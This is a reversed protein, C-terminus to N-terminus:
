SYWKGYFYDYPRTLWFSLLMLVNRYSVQRWDEAMAHCMCPYEGCCNEESWETGCLWCRGKTGSTGAKHVCGRTFRVEGRKMM